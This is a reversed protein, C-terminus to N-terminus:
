LLTDASFMKLLVLTEWALLLDCSFFGFTVIYFTDKKCNIGLNETVFVFITFILCCCCCLSAQFCLHFLHKLCSTFFKVLWTLSELVRDWIPNVMPFAVAVFVALSCRILLLMKVPFASLLRATFEHRVKTVFVLKSNFGSSFFPCASSSFSSFPILKTHCQVWRICM